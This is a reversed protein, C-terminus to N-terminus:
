GNQLLNVKIELYKKIKEEDGYRKALDLVIDIYFIRREYEESDKFSEVIKIAANLCTATPKGKGCKVLMCYLNYYDCYEKDEKLQKSESIIREAEEYNDLKYNCWIGYLIAFPHQPENLVAESLYELAEEYRQALMMIWCMNRYDRAISVDTLKLQRNGIMSMKYMEIAKDFQGTAKLILAYEALCYNARRYAAYKAFLSNAKEICEVAQLYKRCASYSVSLHFNIMAIIKMNSTMTLAKEHWPIGKTYEKKLRYKLGIYDHLLANCDPDNKFYALLSDEFDEVEEIKQNLIGLIYEMLLIKATKYTLEDSCYKNKLKYKNLEAQIYDYNQKHYFLSNIFENMLGDIEEAIKIIANFDVNLAKEIIRITKDTPKEEGREFKGLRMFSINTLKELDRLSLQNYKRILRMEIGINNKM